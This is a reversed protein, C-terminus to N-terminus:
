EPTVETDCIEEKVQKHAKGKLEQLSGKLSQTMERATHEMSEM